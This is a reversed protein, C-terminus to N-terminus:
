CSFCFKGNQAIDREELGKLFSKMALHEAAYTMFSTLIIGGVIM